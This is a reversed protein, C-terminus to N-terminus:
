CITEWKYNRFDKIVALKQPLIQIAFSSRQFLTMYKISQKLTDKSM